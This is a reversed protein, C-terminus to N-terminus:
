THIRSANSRIWLELIVLIFIMEWFSTTLLLLVYHSFFPSPLLTIRGRVKVWALRTVLKLVCLVTCICIWSTAKAKNSAHIVPKWLKEQWPLFALHHYLKLGDELPLTATLGGGTGSQLFRTSLHVSLAVWWSRSSHLVVGGLLEIIVCACKAVFHRVVCLVHIFASVLVGFIKNFM